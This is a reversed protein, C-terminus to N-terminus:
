YHRSNVRALVVAYVPCGPALMHPGSAVNSVTVKPTQTASQKVEQGAGGFKKHGVVKKIEGSQPHPHHCQWWALGRVGHLRVGLCPAIENRVKVAQHKGSINSSLM